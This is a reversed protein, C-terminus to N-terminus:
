NKGTLRRRGVEYALFRRQRKYSSRLREFSDVLQDNVDDLYFHLPALVKADCDVLKAMTQSTKLIKQSLKSLSKLQKPIKRIKSSTATALDCKEDIQSFSIDLNSPSKGMKPLKANSKNTENFSPFKKREAKNTSFSRYNLQSRLPSQTRSDLSNHILQIKNQFYQNKRKYKYYVDKDGCLVKILGPIDESFKRNSIPHSQMHPLKAESILPTEYEPHKARTFIDSFVEFVNSNSKPTKVKRCGRM